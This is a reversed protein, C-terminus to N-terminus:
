TDIFLCLSFLHVLCNRSKISIESNDSVFSERESRTTLQFEKDISYNMQNDIMHVDNSKIRITTVLIILLDFFAWRRNRHCLRNCIKLQDIEKDQVCRVRM